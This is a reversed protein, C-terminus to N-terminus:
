PADVLTWIINTSYEGTRVESPRVYILPGEDKSWSITTVPNSGTTGSFVTVPESTLTLVTGDHTKFKLADPLNVSGDNIKTLPKEIHADIRLQNSSKRTDLVSLTFDEKRYVYQPQSPIKTEDFLITAPIQDFTLTPAQLTTTAVNSSGLLTLNIIQNTAQSMFVYEGSRSTPLGDKFVLELRFKCYSNSLLNLSLLQTFNMMIQNDVIHIDEESFEGKNRIIPIILGILPVDYFARIEVNNKNIESVIEDPLHFIIYTNKILGLNILNEGTYELTIQPKEDQKLNVQLDYESVIIADILGSNPTISTVQMNQTTNNTPKEESEKEINVIEENEDFSVDQNESEDKTNNKTQHFLKNLDDHDNEQIFHNHQEDDLDKELEYPDNEIMENEENREEDEILENESDPEEVDNDTKYDVVLSDNTTIDIPEINEMITEEKEKMNASLSESAPTITLVFLLVIIFIYITSNRLTM